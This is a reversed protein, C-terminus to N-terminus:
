KGGGDPKEDSWFVIKWEGRATGDAFPVRIDLDEGEALKQLPVSFVVSGSEVSGIAFDPYEWKLEPDGVSYNENYRFWVMPVLPVVAPMSEADDRARGQAMDFTIVNLTPQFPKPGATIRPQIPEDPDEWAPAVVFPGITGEGQLQMAPITVASRNPAGAPVFVQKQFWAEFGDAPSPGFRVRSFEATSAFASFGGQEGEPSVDRTYSFGVTITYEPSGIFVTKEGAAFGVVSALLLCMIRM